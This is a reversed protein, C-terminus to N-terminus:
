LKLKLCWIKDGVLWNIYIYLPLPTVPGFSRDPVWKIVIIRINFVSEMYIWGLHGSKPGDLNSSIIFKVQIPGFRLPEVKLISKRRTSDKEGAISETEHLQHGVRDLGRSM